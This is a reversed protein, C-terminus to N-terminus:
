RTEWGVVRGAEFYILRTEKQYGEHSSVYRSYKWRENGYIPNGAVEVLDPDGWSESVARQSMGIVLDNKEIIDAIEPSHVEENAVLGMNQAWRERAEITPLKLFYIRESDNKMMGKLQYYQRREQQSELKSELRQLRLRTELAFQEKEELPRSIELGLEEKAQSELHIQKEQYFDIPRTGQSELSGYGSRPDRQLISCATLGYLTFLSILLPRKLKTM